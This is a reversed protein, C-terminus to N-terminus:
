NFFSDLGSLNNKQSQQPPPQAWPNQADLIDAANVVPKSATHLPQTQNFPPASSASTFGSLSTQANHSNFGSLSTQNSFTNQNNPANQSSISNSINLNSFTPHNNTTNHNGFSNISSLDTFANQSNSTSSLNNFSSHLQNQNQNQPAAQFSNFDNNPQQFTNTALSPPSFSDFPSNLPQTSAPAINASPSNNSGQTYLSLIFDKDFVSSNKTPEAKAQELPPATTSFSNSFSGFNADNTKSESASIFDGFPDVPEKQSSNISLNSGLDLGLLDVANNKSASSNKPPPVPPNNSSTPTKSSTNKATAPVNVLFDISSIVDGNYRELARINQNIDTFGMSILQKVKQDNPSFTKSASSKSGLYRIAADVRYDFKELAALNQRVDSYGLEKLKTLGAIKKDESNSYATNSAASSNLASSSPSSSIISPDPTNNRRNVFMRREYKDRIFRELQSDSRPAPRSDSSPDFYANAKLNGIKTFHAIQEPLWNDLTISKVKTIHTGIRRHFGGCRICLFVGLNWSAWRPSQAGCDSCVSNGEQRLMDQLIRHHKENLLKKENTKASSAM